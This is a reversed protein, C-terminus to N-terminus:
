REPELVVLCRAGFIAPFRSLSRDLGTLVGLLRRPYFAPRSFGGSLLYAFASFAERHVIRWGRLWSSNRFLFRTANGQAAYDGGTPTQELTSRWGIPEDHFCGYAIASIAGVYPDLVIVRGSDTTVRLAEAFFTAPSSLHHFVDFLVLHSVSRERLPLRYADCCIDLWPAFLQDTVVADKAFQGFNGIGGGIEVLQGPISDDIWGALREYLLGYIERLLPKAAWVEANRDREEERTRAGM